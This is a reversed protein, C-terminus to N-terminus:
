VEGKQIYDAWITCVPHENREPNGYINIIWEDTVVMRTMSLWGYARARIEGDVELYVRGPEEEPLVAIVKSM